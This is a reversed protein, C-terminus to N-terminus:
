EHAVELIPIMYLRGYRRDFDWLGWVVPGTYSGVVHGPWSVRVHVHRSMYVPGDFLGGTHSTYAQCATAWGEIYDDCDFGILRDFKRTHAFADSTFSGGYPQVQAQQDCM